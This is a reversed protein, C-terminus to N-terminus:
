VQKKRIINPVCYNAKNSVTITYSELIPLPKRGFVNEAARRCADEEIDAGDDQIICTRKHLSM